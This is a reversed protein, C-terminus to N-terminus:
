KVLSISEKVISNSLKFCYIDLSFKQEMGVHKPLIIKESSISFDQYPPITEYNTYTDGNEDITDNCSEHEVAIKMIDDAIAYGSESDDSINEPQDSTNHNSEPVSDLQGISHELSHEPSSFSEDDNNEIITHKEAFTVKSSKHKLTEKRYNKISTEDEHKHDTQDSHSLNENSRAVKVEAIANEIIMNTWQLATNNASLSENSYSNKEQSEEHFDSNEYEKLTYEKELENSQNEKNCNQEGEELKQKTENPGSSADELETQNDAQQQVDKENVDKADIENENPENEDTEDNVGAPNNDQNEKILKKDPEKSVDNKDTQSEYQNEDAIKVDDKNGNLLKKNLDDSMYDHNINNKDRGKKNINKNGAIQEQKNSKNIKPTTKGRTSQNFQKVNLLTVSQTQKSSKGGM